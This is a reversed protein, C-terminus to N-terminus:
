RAAGKGHIRLVESFRGLGRLHYQRRGEVVDLRVLASDAPAWPAGFLESASSGPELGAASIVASVPAGSWLAVGELLTLLARPHNNPRPLRTRLVEDGQEDTVLVKV